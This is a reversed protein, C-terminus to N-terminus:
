EEKKPLRHRTGDPEQILTHDLQQELSKRVAAVYEARLAARDAEEAPTLAEGAKVRRAYANIRDIKAQEM